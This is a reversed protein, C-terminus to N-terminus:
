DKNQDKDTADFKNPQQQLYTEILNFSIIDNNSPIEFTVDADIEVFEKVDIPNDVENTIVMNNILDGLSDYEEKLKLEVQQSAQDRENAQY